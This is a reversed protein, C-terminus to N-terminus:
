EGAPYPDDTPYDGSGADTSGSGETSSGNGSAFSAFLTLIDVSGRTYTLEGTGDQAINDFSGGPEIAIYSGGLLGDTSIRADSDTPLAWKQDLAMKVVAEFRQPDGSIDKVVGAKVGAIRVDTGRSVGSVNNFRATLEYQDSRPSADGGKAVAFWLFASAVGVVVFGVLTEFVSERM